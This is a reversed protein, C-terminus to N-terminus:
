KTATYDKWSEELVAMDIGRFADEVAQNLNGTMALTKFYTDLIKEWEPNWNKAGKKKGTRLFYILSWGQAYNQGGGAGYKNQGYYEQQTFRVLDQLPVFQNSRVLERVTDVRWKFKEAVFRGGKWEFGSYYDGTGENYWSHPSINGYLYFIYQHFAEHNLVAWTDNRGGGAQDDYLVLEQQTWAWYGASGGPGGYSHYASQDTLVRVVSCKSLERPDGSGLIAKTMEEEAKKSRDDESSSGTRLTEGAKRLEQAKEYPYDVEYQSRIAELRELLEKVFMKDKHPTLVFYNPTEYLKWDGGLKAVETQLKARKQARLDDGAAAASALQKVELPGFSKAMTDYPGEWKASKKPDGPFNVVFAVDLNEALKYNWARIRTSDKAEGPTVWDYVKCPVKNITTDKSGELTFGRGYEAAVWASVDKRAAGTLNIKRGEKGDKTEEPKPRRDFKVLHANVYLPKDGVLVYKELPPDFKAILNLEGPQPPILGWEAPTKIKFGLDVSDEYWKGAKPAQVQAPLLSATAILVCLAPWLALWLRVVSATTTRM